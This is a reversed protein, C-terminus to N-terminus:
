VHVIDTMYPILLLSSSFFSLKNNIYLLNGQLIVELRHKKRRTMALILYTMSSM